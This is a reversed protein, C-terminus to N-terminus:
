DHDIVLSTYNGGFGFYNVLYPGHPAPIHARLPELGLEPDLNEFGATAPLWGESACVAIAATELAGAAGITHGFYPKLSTVPPLASGFLAHLATAEARDSDISGAGHAKVFTVEQPAVGADDLAQRMAARMAEGDPSASTVHHIDCVNAGGRLRPGRTAHEDSELLLVAVSEGLQLGNRDRDFPRAGQPDLLLLSDFGSLTMASIGEAGVVFARAARGRVIWDHAALLANASSSCGTSLTMRPGNMGFHAALLDAGWSPGCIRFPAETRISGTTRAYREATSVYLFGATGVVLAFDERTLLAPGGGWAQLAQEVVAILMAAAGAEGTSFLQPDYRSVRPPDGPYGIGTAPAM